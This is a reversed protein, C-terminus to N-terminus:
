GLRLRRYLQRVAIWISLAAFASAVGLMMVVDSMSFESIVLARSADIMWTLPNNEALTQYWGSMLQTPFFASSAFLLIFVLPFSNQVAEQSGTRLGIAAAAGGVAVALVVALLILALVAPIGGAVRAGFVFFVGIIVVAQVVGLAASSSLRGMLISLRSVPSSALRDFFGDEVDLAMDSGAIIGGFLVAQVLTAPLLFQLFSDVEPFGALNTTRGMAASNVAAILLPFFVGPFWVTPQRFTALVSRRGLARSQALVTSMPLRNASAVATM